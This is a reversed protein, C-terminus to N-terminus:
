ENAEGKGIYVSNYFLQALLFKSNTLVSELASVSIFQYDRLPGELDKSFNGRGSHVTVFETNFMERLKKMLAIARKGKIDLIDDREVNEEELHLAKLYAENDVIKEIMGLHISLFHTHNKNESSDNFSNGDFVGMVDTPNEGISSEPKLNLLRVNKASM